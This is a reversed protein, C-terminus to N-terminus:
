LENRLGAKQLLTDMFFHNFVAIVRGVAIVACVTGIGAGVIKGAFVLGITVTICINFLDFCNKTFGVNKGITDAIAQVIGDGPNPVIRMNLTMAAGIGTLILALFLLLFSGALSGIFSDPYATRFDPIWDNFVNLFRTFILSFPFQLADMLLTLKLNKENAYQLAAGEKVKARKNKRVHLIMEIVVFLAYVILTMNGFNLNWILSISYPVSIIASVGLGAKTNLTLGMALVLIGIVYITWRFLNEKKM